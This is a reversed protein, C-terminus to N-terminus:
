SQAVRAWHQNIRALDSLRPWAASIPPTLAVISVWRTREIACYDLSPNQDPTTAEDLRTERYRNPPSGLASKQVKITPLPNILLFGTEVRATPNRDQHQPEGGRKDPVPRRITVLGLSDGLGCELGDTTNNLTPFTQDSVCFCGPRPLVWLVRAHDAVTKMWRLGGTNEWRSGIREKRM